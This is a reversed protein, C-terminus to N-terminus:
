IKLFTHKDFFQALIGAKELQEETMITDEALKAEIEAKVRKKEIDVVM